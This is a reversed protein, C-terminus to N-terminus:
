DEWPEDGIDGITGEIWELAEAEAVVDAAMERYSKELEEEDEMNMVIQSCNKLTVIQSRLFKSTAIQSRLRHPAM